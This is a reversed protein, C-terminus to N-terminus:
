AAVAVPAGAATQAAPAADIPRSSEAGVGNMRALSVVVVAAATVGLAVSLRRTRRSSARPALETDVAAIDLAAGAASVHGEPLDGARPLAGRAFPALAAALMSVTEFRRAPDKELCRLVVRELAEPADLRRARLKEPPDAAIAACVASAPGPAFPPAGSVLEHMIIGLGWVDSRVDVHKAGRVQEPSMYLPTGVVASTTTIAEAGASPPGLAKAVGFDLVKVLPTGDAAKTLFLNSPKLDRHVVGLRHAEGVAECAQVVYEVAEDIPLPGRRALVRALDEGELYELVLFPAGSPLSGVDLLRAVHPGRLRFTIRAERRLREVVEGADDALKVFKLAVREGLELHMAAMVVGMGGMGLVREIRYKGDVVSGERPLEGDAGRSARRAGRERIPATSRELPPPDDDSM